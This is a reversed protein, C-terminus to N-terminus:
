ALYTVFYSFMGHEGTLTGCVEPVSQQDSIVFIDTLCSGQKSMKRTSAANTGVTPFIHGNVVYHTSVTSTSPGTIVFTTFDLRIQFYLTM